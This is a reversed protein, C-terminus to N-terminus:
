DVIVKKAIDFMEKKLESMDEIFVANNFYQRFNEPRESISGIAIGIVVINNQEAKRVLEMLPRHEEGNPWGDTIFLIIKKKKQSNMVTKICHWMATASPTHHGSGRVEELRDALKAAKENESLLKFVEYRSGYTPFASATVNVGNIKELALALATQADKAVALLTKGDSTTQNVMSGSNDIAIEVISNVEKKKAKTKFLRPDGTAGRYLVKSNLRNGSNATRSRVIQHQQVVGQLTATLQNSTRKCRELRDLGYGNIAHVNSSDPIAVEHNTNAQALTEMSNAFSEMDDEIDDETANLISALAADVQISALMAEKEEKSLSASQQSSQGSNSSQEDAESDGEYDSTESSSGPSSESGDDNSEGQGKGNANEESQSDEEEGEQESSGDSSSSEDSDEQSEGDSAESEENSDGEEGDSSQEQKPEEPEEQEDEDHQRLLTEVEKALNMADVSSSLADLKSDLLAILKSHLKWSVKGIFASEAADLYPQLHTQGRHNVRCHFLLLDNIISIPEADETVPKRKGEAQRNLWIQNIWKKTGIMNDIMAKEIRLDEFINWFAKRVPVDVDSRQIGKFSDFKIHAAEHSMFGLVADKEEKSSINFSPVNITDGDTWAQNGSVTIRVGLKDGLGAGILPLSDKLLENNM